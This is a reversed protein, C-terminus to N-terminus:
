EPKGMQAGASEAAALVAAAFTKFQKFQATTAHAAFGVGFHGTAKIAGKGPRLLFRKDGIWVKVADLGKAVRVDGIPAQAIVEEDKRSRLTLEENTITLTGRRGSLYVGKGVSIPVEFIAAGAEEM